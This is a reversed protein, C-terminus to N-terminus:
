SEVVAVVVVAVRKWIGCILNYCDVLRLRVKFVLILM